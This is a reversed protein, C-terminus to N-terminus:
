LSTNSEALDAGYGSGAALASTLAKAATVAQAGHLPWSQTLGELILLLAVEQGALGTAAAAREAVEQKHRSLLDRVSSSGPDAAVAAHFLCGHTTEREMWLGVRDILAARAAGPDVPLDDLVQAMYRQHRHELAALVMDARSPMYKYLTRLSVGAADRLTEVSPEAFGQSAFTRELGAAIKEHTGTM